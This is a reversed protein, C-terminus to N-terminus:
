ASLAHKGDWFEKAAPLAEAPCFPDTPEREAAPGGYATFINVSGDANVMGIITLLRTPRTPRSCLRSDGRGGRNAYHVEEEPVPADGSAPGWLANQLDPVGEPLDLTTLFFGEGRGTVFAEVVEWHAPLLGHDGHTIKISPVVQGGIATPVSDVNRDNITTM